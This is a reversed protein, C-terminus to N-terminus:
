RAGRREQPRTGYNWDYRSRYLRHRAAPVRVDDVTSEDPGAELLLVRVGPDEALRAAVVCGASGGGVIVYDFM